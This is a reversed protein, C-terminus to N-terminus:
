HGVFREGREECRRPSNGTSLQPLPKIQAEEGGQATVDWDQSCFRNTCRGAPLSSSFNTLARRQLKWFPHRPKKSPSPTAPLHLSCSQFTCAALEAPSPEAGRETGGPVNKYKNLHKLVASDACPLPPPGAPTHAAFGVCGLCLDVGGSMQLLDTGGPHLLAAGQVNLSSLGPNRAMCLLGQGRDRPMLNGRWTTTCLDRQCLHCIELSRQLDPGFRVQLWM